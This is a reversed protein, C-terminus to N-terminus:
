LRSGSNRCGTNPPPCITGVNYGQVLKEPLPTDTEYKKRADTVEKETMFDIHEGKDVESYTPVFFVTNYDLHDAKNIHKCVHKDYVGYYLRVGDGKRSGSTLEGISKLIAQLDDTSYWVWGNNMKSKNKKFHEHLYVCAENIIPKGDVLNLLETAM